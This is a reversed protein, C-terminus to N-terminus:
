TQVCRFSMRRTPRGSSGAGSTLLTTLYTGGRDTAIFAWRYDTAVLLFRVAQIMRMSLGWIPWSSDGRQDTPLFYHGMINQMLADVTQSVLAQVAVITNKTMFSGMSLCRQSLLLYQNAMPDSVALELNYQCGSALVVYFLALEHPNVTVKSSGLGEEKVAQSSAYIRDVMAEFVRREVIDYSEDTHM